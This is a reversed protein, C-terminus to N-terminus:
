SYCYCRDGGGEPVSGHDRNEVLGREPAVEAVTGKVTTDFMNIHSGSPLARGAEYEMRMMM